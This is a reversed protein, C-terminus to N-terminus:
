RCYFIVNMVVINIYNGKNLFVNKFYVIYYYLGYNVIIFFLYNGVLLKLCGIILVKFLNLM